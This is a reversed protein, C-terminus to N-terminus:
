LEIILDSYGEAILILDIDEKYQPYKGIVDEYKLACKIIRSAFYASMNTGGKVKFNIMEEGLSSMLLFDVAMQTIAIDETNVNTTNDVQNLKAVVPKNASYTVSVTPPILTDIFLTGNEYCELILKQLEFPIEEYYPETLEYVVKIPNEQLWKKFEDLTTFTCSIGWLGVTEVTGFFCEDLKLYYGKIWSKKPLKDIIFNDVKNINTQYYDNPMKTRYFTFLGSLSSYNNNKVWEEKGDLIIEGCNREIMLKGDKLVFRDKVDGVGRLPEISSFQIKNSNSPTYETSIESIYFDKFVVENIEAINRSSNLQLAVIGSYDTQITKYTTHTGNGKIDDFYVYRSAYDDVNYVRYMKLSGYSGKNIMTYGVKYTTNPKLKIYSNGSRWTNSDTNYIKFSNNDIKEFKTDNLHSYFTNNVEDVNFVNENKSLIEMKYTGDDQLKDEFSSQMGEFHSPIWNTKDGELLRVKSAKIGKGYLRLTDDTLTAPTTITAVNNTTTVKAGGLNIGVEGSKNTDFAVTYKTSPKIITNYGSNQVKMNCPITSNNSIHTTDLHTILQPDTIEEYTPTALQYVVKTPKNKFLDVTEEITFELNTTYYWLIGSHSVRIHEYSEDGHTTIFNDCMSNGFTHKTDNPLNTRIRTIKNFTEKTHWVETGDLVVEGCNREIYWKGGQKVFKDCVGNPLGRLPESLQISHTNTAYPVYIELDREKDGIFLNESGSPHSIQLKIYEVNNPITFILRNYGDSGRVSQKNFLYSNNVKEGNSNVQFPKVWSNYSGRSKFYYVKEKRTDIIQNFIREIGNDYDTNNLINYTNCSVIEVKNDELEFASKMGEFYPPIERDTWDGELILINKSIRFESPFGYFGLQLFSNGKLTEKKKMTFTRKYLGNVNKPIFMTGEGTYYDNHFGIYMGNGTESTDSNKFYFVITYTKDVLRDLAGEIQFQSLNSVTNTPMYVFEDETTYYKSELTGTSFNYVKDGDIYNVLTNGECVVDVKGNDVGETLTVNTGQVNIENNLTLEESGNTCYNVLTNGQLEDIIIKGNDSQPLSIITGEEEISITDDLDNLANLLIGQHRITKESTSIREEHNNVKNKLDVIVENDTIKAELVEVRDKVNNIDSSYSSLENVLELHEEKRAQESLEVEEVVKDVETIKSNVRNDIEVMKNDLVRTINSTTSNSYNNFSEELENTTAEKYDSIDSNLANTTVEKYNSIENTMNEISTNVKQISKDMDILKNGALDILEILVPYNTDAEIANPNELSKDVKYSYTQSPLVDGNKMVAVIEFENLGEKLVDSKFPIRILRNEIDLIEISDTFSNEGVKFNAYINLVEELDLNINAEKGYTDVSNDKYLTGLSKTWFVDFKIQM